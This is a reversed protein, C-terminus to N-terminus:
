DDYATLEDPWMATRGIANVTFYAAATGAAAATSRDGRALAGLAAGACLSTLYTCTDNLSGAYDLQEPGTRDDYRERFSDMAARARDAQEGAADDYLQLGQELYANILDPDYTGTDYMATINEQTKERAAADDIEDDHWLNFFQAAAEDIHPDTMGLLTYIRSRLPGLSRHLQAHVTEHAAVRTRIDKYIEDRDVDLYTSETAGTEAPDDLLESLDVDSLAQFTAARELADDYLTIRHLLPDYHGRVVQADKGSLRIPWLRPDHRTKMSVIKPFEEDLGLPALADQVRDYLNDDSSM